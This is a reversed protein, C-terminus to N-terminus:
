GEVGGAAQCQPCYYLRRSTATIRLIEAGCDFCPQHQRDFVAFRYERRKRAGAKRLRTVRGPPNTVGGTAYARRSITLTARALAGLVATSLESPKAQPPVRAAFLIESRLYNGLGALFGQDLYLSALSRNRCADSLLRRKVDRWTLDADLVDPGLRRLFPHAALEAADLVEITSASYLLASDAETHLAMRLSRRTRPLEGRRRIMWRGYLQNHSFLTLGNDLHILMAKGRSTVLRVRADLVQEVHRRLRPLGFYVATLRRGQLVDAIQDAERRVEPGEPV